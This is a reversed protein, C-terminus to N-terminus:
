RMSPPEGVSQIPEANITSLLGTNAAPGTRGDAGEQKTGGTGTRRVQKEGRNKWMQQQEGGRIRWMQQQERNKQKTRKWIAM